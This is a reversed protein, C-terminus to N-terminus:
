VTTYQMLNKRLCNKLFYYQQRLNMLSVINLKLVSKVMTFTFRLCATISPLQNKFISVDGGVFTSILTATALPVSVNYASRQLLSESVAAWVILRKQPDIPCRYVAQSQVCPLVTVNGSFSFKASKLLQFPILRSEIGLLINVLLTM